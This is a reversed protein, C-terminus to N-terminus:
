LSKEGIDVTLPPPVPEGRRMRQLRELQNLARYLQRKLKGDYNIIKDLIAPPPLVNASKHAEEEKNERTACEIMDTDNETIKLDLYSLLRQKQLVRFTEAELNEPNASCLKRIGHLYMTLSYPKNHFFVKNIAEDTLEGHKEVSARVELLHQKKIYHGMGSQMLAKEPDADPAWIGDPRDREPRRQWIGCDVSLAIEGSEAKLVRHSRWLTTVILDVLVEELRGVPQLDEYLDSRLTALESNDEKIFMGHVPTERLFISHKLANMKSRERGADTKPGTSKLANARNAAVKEPSLKIKM